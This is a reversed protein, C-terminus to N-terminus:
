ANMRKAFLSRGWIKLWRAGGRPWARWGLGQHLRVVDDRESALRARCEPRQSIGGRAFVALPLSIVDVKVDSRGLVRLNWEYDMVINYRTDYHGYQEFLKRRLLSGPHPIWPLFPPWRRAEAPHSQPSAAGEYTIAGIVADARTGNLVDLMAEPRLASDVLDGGNIFWVWEGRAVALGENFAAAIGSTKQKQWIVRSDVGKQAIDGLYVVIHEVESHARWADTSALTRGLGCADDKAISILTIRPTTRM